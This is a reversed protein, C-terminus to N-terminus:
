GAGQCQLAGFSTNKTGCTGTKCQPYLLAAFFIRSDNGAIDEFEKYYAEAEELSGEKIALEVLKYLFRRGLGSREYALLLIEKAEGYELNNEYVESVVQLLKSDQVRRWDITDAIKMANGYDGTKALKKLQEVKISFDYKDM